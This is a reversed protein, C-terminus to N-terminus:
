FFYYITMKLNFIEDRPPAEGLNVKDRDYHAQRVINWLFCCTNLVFDEYIIDKPFILGTIFRVMWFWFDLM